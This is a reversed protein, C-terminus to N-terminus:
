DEARDPAARIFDDINPGLILPLFEDIQEDPWNWWAIELLQDIVAPPFRYKIVKAPNGGVVAYPPVDKTVVAHAAVVAGHGITVGSTVFASAGIWVDNGITVAGNSHHDAIGTASPWWKSLTSFPYSSVSDTRHNGLAIEVGAAMSCFKGIALPAAPREFIMPRGYTHDGIDWGFKAIENAMLTRTLQPWRGRDEWAVSTASFVVSPDMLSKGAFVASHGPESTRELRSTVRGNKHLFLLTGDEVRWGSEYPHSYGSLGGDPRFRLAPSLIRDNARLTWIGHTLEKEVDRKAPVLEDVEPIPM